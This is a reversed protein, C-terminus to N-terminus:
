QKSSGLSRNTIRSAPTDSVSTVVALMASPYAKRSSSLLFFITLKLPLCFPTFVAKLFTCASNAAVALGSAAPAVAALASSGLASTSASRVRHSLNRFRHSAVKQSGCRGTAELVGDKASIVSSTCSASEAACTRLESTRRRIAHSLAAMSSKSSACWSCESLSRTSASSLLIITWGGGLGVGVGDMSGVGAVGLAFADSESLSASSRYGVVLGHEMKADSMASSASDTTVFISCPWKPRPM